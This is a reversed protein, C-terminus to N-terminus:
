RGQGEILNKIEFDIVFQAKQIYKTLDDSAKKLSVMVSKWTVGDIHGIYESNPATYQDPPLGVLTSRSANARVAPM